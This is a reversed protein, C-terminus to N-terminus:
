RVASSAGTLEIFAQELTRRQPTLAAVGIGAEVLTRNIEAPECDGPDFELFDRRPRTAQITFRARLLADAREDDGARTVLVLHGGSDGILDDLAGVRLIRGNAIIALQDCVGEMEALLHSSLVITTGEEDRIRRILERIERSGQPDLGNTPEDLILLRPRELLALALGLRQRMGQSYGAVRENARAALGVWELM